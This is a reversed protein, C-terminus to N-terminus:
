FYPRPSDEEEEENEEDESEFCLHTIQLEIREHPDGDAQQSCSYSTVQALAHLHLLDGVQIEENDLGLKEIEDECLSICLGYPYKNQNKIANPFAEEELEEQDKAMDAFKRTM